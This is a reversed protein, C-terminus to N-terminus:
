SALAVIKGADAAPKIQWYREAEKPRVLERYHQFVLTANTHGLELSLKAADKFNALHYSAFSHRLANNPWEKIGVAARVDDLLNNYNRPAVPGRAQAFPRLWQGLNEQIHVFRRRASKAKKATVEILGAELDVESWDLRELEARRLGAFAGIAFFPLLEEPASTLLDATQDPTLIGVPPEIEKAKATKAAPNEICYGHERAFNFAVILVRRYNNRTTAAVGLSRLWHNIEPATFESVKKGTFFAVFMGLRSRLDSLYRESAGDTKRAQILQDVLENITCTRNEALLHPLYFNVADRLTKKFPALKESCEIAETRLREPFQVADAGQNKREIRLQQAKAEAEQRSRYFLRPGTGGIRADLMYAHAGTEYKVKRILPWNNKNM